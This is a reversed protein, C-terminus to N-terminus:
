CDFTVRFCDRARGLSASITCVLGIVGSHNASQAILALESETEPPGHAQVKVPHLEVARVRAVVARDASQRWKAPATLRLELPRRDGMPLRIPTYAVTLTAEPSPIHRALNILNNM